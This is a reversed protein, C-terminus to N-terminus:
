CSIKARRTKTEIVAHALVASIIIAGGILAYITPREGIIILVLIPNLIPEIYGVIFTDLSRAGRNIALTFFLYAVGIQIVGLYLVIWADRWTVATQNDTLGSLLFPLAVCGLFLNGYIVPALPNANKKQRSRLRLLLTFAAYCLGSALAILNGRVDGASMEGRFFLSMGLLCVVVIAFDRARYREKFVFPELLLVYVPATYQLFIANAATTLKTALVFLLLTGAYFLIAALLLWDFRKRAPSIEDLSIKDLTEDSAVRGVNDVDDVRRRSRMFRSLLVLTVVAILSRASSLEVGSLQTLKIGLGGTSFLVAAVAAFVLPNIQRTTNTSPNM